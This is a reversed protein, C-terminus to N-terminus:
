VKMLDLCAMKKTNNDIEMKRKNQRRLTKIINIWISITEIILIIDKAKIDIQWCQDVMMVYIVIMGKM